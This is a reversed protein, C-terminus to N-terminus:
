SEALMKKVFKLLLNVRIHYFDLRGLGCICARVSDFKRFHFIRRFVTNWCSNLDACQSNTLRVACLSYELLPLCFSEQLKLQFFEDLSHSNGLISNCAAFFKHKVVDINVRLSKGALFSVGLYKFSDCWSITENGLIMDAIRFKGATKGVAFCCSKSCNFTLQQDISVEYCCNLMKQLGDVSASMLIIDDAYLVCGVFYGGICCGSRLARLNVIFINMFVNFISPSLSSGQRVGSRVTFSTSLCGKWRVAVSLKSYWDVLLALITKPIGTKSLAVFLQYHNVTDFAKSIDLSAAFVTSGRNRFYDITSRMTFIANTCGVDSKFGFQLDDTELCAGCIDLLILEFLKAIVPILTIGRYNDLSNINGTKDKLLPIIIGESFGDPVCGTSLLARFLACLHMVLMPHANVLHEASLEDPGCAKGLKLQRICKDVLEVNILDNLENSNFEKGSYNELLLQIDPSNAGNASAKQYVNNFHNAFSNAVSVGDNTGNIYVDKLANQCFKL